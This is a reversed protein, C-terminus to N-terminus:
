KEQWFPILEMKFKHQALFLRVKQAHELPIIFVGNALKRGQYKQIMGEKSYTKTSVKQTYGYLQRWISLNKARHKGPKVIFLYYGKTEVGASYKGYLVLGSAILSRQLEDWEHLKGISLHFQNRLGLLAWYKHVKVSNYYHELTLRIQPEVKPNIIDIFLDIDSAKTAEERAVSGFLIIQKINTDGMEQLLFSVFDVAYAKLKSNM